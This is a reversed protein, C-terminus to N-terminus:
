DSAPLPKAQKLEMLIGDVAPAGEGGQTVLLEMGSPEHVYRKGLQVPGEHGAEISPADGSPEAKPGLMPAGGLTLSVPRDPARVIVVEARSVSSKLKTGVKLDNPEM